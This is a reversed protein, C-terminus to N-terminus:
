DSNKFVILNLWSLEFKLVDSRISGACDSKQLCVRGKPSPTGCPDIEKLFVDKDQFRLTSMNVVLFFNLVPGRKKFELLLRAVFGSM